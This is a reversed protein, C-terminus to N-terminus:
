IFREWDFRIEIHLTQNGLITGDTRSLPTFIVNSEIETVSVRRVAAPYTRTIMREVFVIVKRLV